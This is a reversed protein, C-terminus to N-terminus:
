EPTIQYLSAGATGWAESAVYGGVALAAALAAVGAIEAGLLWADTSGLHVTRSSRVRTRGGFLPVQWSPLTNEIQAM